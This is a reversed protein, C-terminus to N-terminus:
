TAASHLAGTKHMALAAAGLVGADDGLTPPVILKEIYQEIAEVPVFGNLLQQVNCHIKAFLAVNSMVGGGLIIKTPSLLLVVNTVLHSLYHATQDYAPHDHPLESLKKGWRAVVSPGAAKGEICDVHTPCNGAFMDDPAAPARMHGMEPHMLGHVPKGNVIVGGGIGTGVTIYVVPDCGVAAGWTAEGFAAANVDTDLALPVDFADSFYRQLPCNRWAIKPTPGIQGYDSASQDLRVPGFTGIGLAAFRTHKRIFGQLVNQMDALSEEPAKTHVTVRELLTGAADALGCVIKTGGLEIGAFLETM